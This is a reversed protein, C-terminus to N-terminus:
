LLSMHKEFLGVYVLVCSSKLNNDKSIHMSYFLKANNNKYRYLTYLYQNSTVCGVELPM